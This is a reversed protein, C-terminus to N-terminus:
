HPTPTGPTDAGAGGEAQGGGFKGLISHIDVDEGVLNRLLNILETDSAEEISHVHEIRDAFLKLYKGHLESAKNAATVQGLQLAVMRHFELDALVKEVTIDSVNIHGQIIKRIAKQIAPKKLNEQGVSALTSYCGAYGAEEASRVANYLTDGPTTYAVVFKQQKPTLDKDPM